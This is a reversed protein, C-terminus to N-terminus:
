CPSNLDGEKMNDKWGGRLEDSRELINSMFTEYENFMKYVNETGAKILINCFLKVKTSNFSTISRNTYKTYAKYAIRVIFIIM